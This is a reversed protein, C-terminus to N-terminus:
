DKVVIIRIDDIIKIANPEITKEKNRPLFYTFLSM